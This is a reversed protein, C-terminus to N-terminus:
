RIVRWVGTFRCAYEVRWTKGDDTNMRVIRGKSVLYNHLALCDEYTELTNNM